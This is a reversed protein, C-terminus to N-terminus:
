KYVKKKALIKGINFSSFEKQKTAIIILWFTLWVTEFMSHVFMANVIYPLIYPLNDKTFFNNVLRSAILLYVTGMMVGMRVLPSFLSNHVPQLHVGNYVTYTDLGIAKYYDSGYGWIRILKDSQIMELARYDSVFREMNALDIFGSHYNGVNSLSVHSIWLLTLGVMALFCIIFIIVIKNIKFKCLFDYIPARFIYVVYFLVLLGLYSRSDNLFIAYLFAMIVGLRKGQRNSYMFFLFVIISSYNKDRNLGFNFNGSFENQYHFSIIISLVFLFLFAYYFWNTKGYDIKLYGNEVIIFLALLFAYRIASYFESPGKIYVGLLEMAVCLAVIALTSPKIKEYRQALLALSGVGFLAFFVSIKNDNLFFGIIISLLIINYCLENRKINM